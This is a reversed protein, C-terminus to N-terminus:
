NKVVHVYDVVGYIAGSWLEVGLQLASGVMPREAGCGVTDYSAGVNLYERGDLPM